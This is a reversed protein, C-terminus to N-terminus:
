SAGVFENVFQNALNYNHDNADVRAYKAYKSNKPVFITERSIEEGYMNEYIISKFQDM